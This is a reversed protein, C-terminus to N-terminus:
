CPDPPTLDGKGADLAAEIDRLIFGLVVLCEAQTGQCHRWEMLPKLSNRLRENEATLVAIRANARKKDNLVNWVAASLAGVFNDPVDVGVRGMLTIAQDHILDKSAEWLDNRHGLLRRNEAEVAALKAELVEVACGLCRGEDDVFRLGHVHDAMSQGIDTMRDSTM